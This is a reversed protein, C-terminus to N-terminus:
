GPIYGVRVARASMAFCDTLNTQRQREGAGPKRLFLQSPRVAREKDSHIEWHSCNGGYDRDNMPFSGTVAAPGARKTTRGDRLHTVAIGGADGSIELLTGFAFWKEDVCLYRLQSNGPLGITGRTFGRLPLINISVISAVHYRETLLPINTRDGM